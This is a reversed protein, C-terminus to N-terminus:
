DSLQIWSKAAEHVIDVLSRQGHYKGPLFVANPQWKRKWPIKGVWTQQMALPNKVM